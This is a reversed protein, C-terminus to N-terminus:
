AGKLVNVLGRFVRYWLYVWNKLKWRWPCALAVFVSLILPNSPNKKSFLEKIIENIKKNKNVKLGTTEEDVWLKFGPDTMLAMGKRHARITFEPDSNYHPLLKPYFGGIELFDCVKLLLGRTTLCNIEELTRSQEFILNKWDVHAGWDILKGSQKSYAQAQMLTKVRTGYIKMGKELFNDAFETDDNLILVFDHFSVDHNKLWLYGQHLSGGWWWDGKGQIVTLSKMESRVMEETGDASGDDILILHYDTYTQSKLCQVFRQTVAKRNHVPLLIYVMEIECEKKQSDFRSNVIVGFFMPDNM